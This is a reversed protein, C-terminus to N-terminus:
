SAVPQIVHWWHQCVLAVLVFLVLGLGLVFRTRFVTTYLLLLKIDFMPGFVLFAMSAAFPINLRAWMNAAIFADSTSCLGFVFALGQMFWVSGAPHATVFEMIDLQGAVQVISSIGVGIVFFSGVELFDRLAARLAYGLRDAVAPTAVAAAAPRPREGASGMGSGLMAELLVKPRLVWSSKLRLAVLGVVVAVGFGLLLRYTAFEAPLPLREAAPLPVGFPKLMGFAKYTSFWVIPSVIPAALMYTIACSLPLGKRLMRRIVPIAACECLPLVLGLAGAAIVALWRSRPLMRTITAPPVFADILGSLLAGLVLFPAGELLVSLFTLAIDGRFAWADRAAVGLSAVM